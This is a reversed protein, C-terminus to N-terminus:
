GQRGGFGRVEGRPRPPLEAAQEFLTLASRIDSHVSKAAKVDQAHQRQAEAISEKWDDFADDFCDLNVVDLSDPPDQMDCPLTNFSDCWTDGEPPLPWTHDRPLSWEGCPDPAAAFDEEEVPLLAAQTWGFGFWDDSDSLIFGGFSSILVLGETAGVKARATILSYEVQHELIFRIGDIDFLGTTAAAQPDYHKVDVVELEMTSGTGTTMSATGTEAVMEDFFLFGGDEPFPAGFFTEWVVQRDTTFGDDGVDDGAQAPVSAVGIALCTAATIQTIRDFM